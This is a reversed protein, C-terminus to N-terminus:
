RADSAAADSAAQATVVPADAPPVSGAGNSVEVLLSLGFVVALVATLATCTMARGIRVTKSVGATAGPPASM